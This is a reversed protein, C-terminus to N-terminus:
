AFGGFTVPTAASAAESPESFTVQSADSAEGATVFYM